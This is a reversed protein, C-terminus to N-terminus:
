KKDTNLTLEILMMELEMMETRLIKKFQNVLKMQVALDKDLEEDTPSVKCPSQSSQQPFPFTSPLKQINKSNSTKPIM